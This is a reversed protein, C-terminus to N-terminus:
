ARASAADHTIASHRLDHFPRIHGEVGAAALAAKLAAKVHEANYRTGRELHCFV